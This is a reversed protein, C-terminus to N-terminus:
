VKTPAWGYVRTLTAGMLAIRESQSLRATAGSAGVGGGDPM